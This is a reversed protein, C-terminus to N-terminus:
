GETWTVALETPAISLSLGLPFRSHEGRTLDLEVREGDQARVTFAGNAFAAVMNEADAPSWYTSVAAFLRRLAIRNDPRRDSPYRLRVTTGLDVCGGHAVSLVSGDASRWSVMRLDESMRGGPHRAAMRAVQKIQYDQDFTCEDDGARLSPSTCLVLLACLMSLKRSGVRVGNRMGPVLPPSWDYM